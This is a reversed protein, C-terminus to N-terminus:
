VELLAYFPSIIAIEGLTWSITGQFYVKLGVIIFIICEFLFAYKLFRKAIFFTNEM